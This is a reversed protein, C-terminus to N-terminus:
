SWGESASQVGLPELESCTFDRSAECERVCVGAFGAPPTGCCTTRMCVEPANCDGSRNCYQPETANPTCCPYVCRCDKGRDDRCAKECGTGRRPCTPAAEAERAAMGLGVAGLASAAAMQLARCRSVAMDALAATLNDFDQISV